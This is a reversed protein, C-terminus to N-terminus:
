HFGLNETLSCVLRTWTLSVMSMDLHRSPTSNFDIKSHLSPSLAKLNPCTTTQYTLLLIICSMSNQYSKCLIPAFEFVAVGKSAQFPLLTLNTESAQCDIFCRHSLQKSPPFTTHSYVSILLIHFILLRIHEKLIFGFMNKVLFLSNKM